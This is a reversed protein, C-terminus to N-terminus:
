FSEKTLNILAKANKVIKQTEEPPLRGLFIITDGTISKLYQEDPGSGVMLLPLKLQNFTKIILDCERVFTVLRGVCVFYEQPNSSIRAYYFADNIKPYVVKGELGYIEKALQQTYKSNFQVEDFTTFKKDWKQLRPILFSFLKKKWGIFKELYEERHSRIYQMPSHLYLKTYPREGKKYLPLTINKAIAFSSIVVRKPIFKKIKYSLLKM